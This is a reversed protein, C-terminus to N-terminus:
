LVCIPIVEGVLDALVGVRGQEIEMQFRFAAERRRSDPVRIASGEGLDPRGDDSLRLLPLLRGALQFEFALAQSSRRFSETRLM